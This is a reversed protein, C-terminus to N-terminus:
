QLWSYDRRIQTLHGNSALEQLWDPQQSDRGKHQQGANGGQSGPNGNSFSDSQKNAGSGTGAQDANGEARTAPDVGAPTWVQTQYHQDGLRASLSPLENQLSRTLEGNASRVSVALAGAREVLRVDVRQNDVGAIQVHVGRVQGPASTNEGSALEVVPLERPAAAAAPKDASGAFTVQEQVATAVAHAITANEPAQQPTGKGGGNSGSMSAKLQQSFSTQPAEPVANDAGQSEGSDKGAAASNKGPNATVRLGFALDSDSSSTPRVRPGGGASALPNRENEGSSNKSDVSAPDSSATAENVNPDSPRALGGALSWLGSAPIASAQLDRKKSDDKKSADPGRTDMSHDVATNAESAALQADGSVEDGKLAADDTKPNASDAKAGAASKGSSAAPQESQGADSTSKTKQPQEADGGSRRDSKQTRSQASHESASSSAFV